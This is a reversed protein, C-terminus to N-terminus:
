ADPAEQFATAPLEGQYSAFKTKNFLTEPRLFKRMTADGKWEATKLGIVAWCQDFTAGERLRAIILDVNTQTPQFHKGAKTNLFALLERAATRMAAPGHGHGNIGRGLSGADPPSGSLTTPNKEETRTKNKNEERRRKARSARQREAQTSDEQYKTWNNWTVTFSGHRNTGEEIQVHPLVAITPKLADVPVGMEAALVANSPSVLIHGRTGHLKTHAGFAVWAWRLAPALNQLTDDGPASCWLKFWRAQDAM